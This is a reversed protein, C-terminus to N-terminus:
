CRRRAAELAELLADLAPRAACYIERWSLERCPKAVAASLCIAATSILRDQLGHRGILEVFTRATRPSFLLV